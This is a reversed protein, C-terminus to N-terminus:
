FFLEKRKLFMSLDVHDVGSHNEPQTCFNNLEGFVSDPEIFGLLSRFVTEEQLSDLTAVFFPIDENERKFRLVRSRVEYWYWLCRVVPDDLPLPVLNDPSDPDLLWRKATNDVGPVTRAAYLSRAVLEPKRELCVVKLLPKIDKDKVARECFTKIFMHNTEVYNKGDNLVELIKAKKEKWCVYLNEEFTMVPGNEHTVSSNKLNQGLQNKLWTTGSKGTTAVFVVSNSM